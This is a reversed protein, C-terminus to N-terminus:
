HSASTSPAPRKDSSGRASPREAAESSSSPRLPEGTGTPKHVITVLGVTQVTRFGCSSATAPADREHTEAHQLRLGTAHGCHKWGAWTVVMGEGKVAQKGRAQLRRAAPPALVEARQLLVDVLQRRGLELQLAPQRLLALQGRRQGGFVHAEAFVEVLLHQAFQGPEM